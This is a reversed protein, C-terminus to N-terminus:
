ATAAELHTGQAEAAPKESPLPVAAPETVESHTNTGTNSRTATATERDRDTGVESSPVLNTGLGGANSHIPELHPQWSLLEQEADALIQRAENVQEFPQRVDGPVM